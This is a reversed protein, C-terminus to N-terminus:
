FLYSLCFCGGEVMNGPQFFISSFLSADLRSLLSSFWRDYGIRGDMWRLVMGDWGMGDM